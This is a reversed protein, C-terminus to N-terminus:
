STFQQFLKLVEGNLRINRGFIDPTNLAYIEAKAGNFDRTTIVADREHDLNIFLLTFDYEDSNSAHIYARFKESVSSPVAKFKL